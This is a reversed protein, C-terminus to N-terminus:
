SQFDNICVNIYGIKSQALKLKMENKEEPTSNNKWYTWDKNFIPKSDIEKKRKRSYEGITCIPKAPVGAYVYNSKLDRNVLSNSGIIVNDGITVGCLITTKHGIFVNNGIKVAGIKLMGVHSSTSADHALICVQTSIKCKEGIEILWPFMSDIGQPGHMSKKTSEAIKLGKDELEKFPDINNKCLIKKLISKM